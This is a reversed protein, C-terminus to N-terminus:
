GCKGYIAPDMKAPDYGPAPRIHTIRVTGDANPKVCVSPDHTPNFKDTPSTTTTSPASGTGVPRVDTTSTRGTRAQPQSGTCAALAAAAVVSLCLLRM